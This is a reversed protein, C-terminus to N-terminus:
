PSPGGPAIEDRAFTKLLIEFQEKNVPIQARVLDRTVLQVLRGSKGKSEPTQPVVLDRAIDVTDKAIEEVLIMTELGAAERAAEQNIRRLPDPSKRETTPPLDQILKKRLRNERDYDSNEKHWKICNLRHRENQCSKESCVKQRQGVRPHPRFSKGCVPCRKERRIFKMSRM